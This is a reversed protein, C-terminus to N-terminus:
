KICPKSKIKQFKCFRHNKDIRFFVPKSKDSSQRVSNQSSYNLLDLDESNGWLAYYQKKFKRAKQFPVGWVYKEQRWNRKPQNYSSVFAIKKEGLEYELLIEIEGLNSHIAKKM